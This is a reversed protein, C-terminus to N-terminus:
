TPKLSQTVLMKRQKSKASRCAFIDPRPDSAPGIFDKWSTIYTKLQKEFGGNKRVHFQGRILEVHIIKGEDRYQSSAM